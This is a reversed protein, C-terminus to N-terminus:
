RPVDNQRANAEGRGDIGNGGLFREATDRIVDRATEVDAWRITEDPFHAQDINGPGFVVTPIGAAIYHRNDAGYTAGTPATDSLGSDTMAAQLSRVVPEDADIEAPEFMISFRDFEPPHESLWDDDAVVEALRTEFAAEVEDVTEGPAVGIRWEATLTGPVTSAWSGAEVRGCVIPWPVDFAEYLPHTVRECREAELETFAGRIREFLPLTDVGNWRTAAHASRGAIRLRKMVTGETATVPRLETPEAVLGADRDFPYPSDLAAAAAGLGGEEEGAVAEVVVRGDLDLDGSGVAERLDVAAHVCAAVAAKMDVAGRCTLTEAGDDAEGWVPDFPDSTWLDDDAPVVDLHGNLVITRGADPDGFEVVGAVSPRGTADIAAPDDPFSPHGALREPDAEWTYTEFGADALRDRLWEAAPAEAGDTTEFECLRTTLDRLDPVTM